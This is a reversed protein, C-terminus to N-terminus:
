STGPRRGTDAEWWRDAPDGWTVPEGWRNAYCAATAPPRPAVGWRGLPYGIPLVGQLRWEPDTAGLLREIAEQADRVLIRTFVSGIGLARAALCASWMAPYVSPEDGPAGFAFLILPVEAIHDALYQSSSILKRMKAAGDEDGAAVCEALLRDFHGARRAAFAQHWIAGIAQKTEAATVAVFCVRLAGGGAPARIAADVIRAVDDPAIPDPRLRRMARTTYLSEFADM